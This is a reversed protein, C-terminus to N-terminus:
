RHWIEIPRVHTSSLLAGYGTRREVEVADVARFDLESCLANANPCGLQKLEEALASGVCAAASSLAASKRSVMAILNMGPTLNPRAPIAEDVRTAQEPEYTYIAEITDDISGLYRAVGVALGSRLSECVSCSGTHLVERLEANNRLGAKEACFALAEELM